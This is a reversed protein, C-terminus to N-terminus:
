YAYCIVLEEWCAAPLAVAFALPLPLACPAASKVAPAEALFAVAEDPFAFPAAM